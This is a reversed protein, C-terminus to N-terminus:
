DTSVHAGEGIRMTTPDYRFVFRWIRRLYRLAMLLAGAPLCTYYIWVPFRLSSGSREDLLVALDVVQWGYWVLLLCFALCLTCNVIELARQRPM